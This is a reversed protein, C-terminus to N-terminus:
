APAPADVTIRFRSGHGEHSELLNVDGGLSHALRRSMVLGLGAGGFQRTTSSDVQAFPRFLTGKDRESIGIGSDEVDIALLRVDGNSDAAKSLHVAVKGKATFKFANDLVIGLIERLRTPDTVFPAGVDLGVSDIRLDLSRGMNQEMAINSIDDIVQKVTTTARHTTDTLDSESDAKAVELIYNVLTAVRSSNRRIGDALINRDKASLNPNGTLAEAFGVIVSLPTRIEHNINLLFSTKAENAMEAFNKADSASTRERERQMVVSAVALATAQLTAIYLLLEFDSALHSTMPGFRGLGQAAELTTIMGIALSTLTAGQQGLRMAAWIVLAFDIFLLGLRQRGYYHMLGICITAVTFLLVERKSLTLPSFRKTSTKTCFVLVAPALSLVGVSDGAWYKIWYTLDVDHYGTWYIMPVGILTGVATSLLAAGIVVRMIDELRDLQLRFDGMCLCFYAGVLPEVANGIAAGIFPLLPDGNLAHVCLTGFFFAPAVRPGWLLVLALALGAAPWIQTTMQWDAQIELSIWSLLLYLVLAVAFQFWVFRSQPTPHRTLPQKQPQNEVLAM